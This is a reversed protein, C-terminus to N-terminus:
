LHIYEYSRRISSFRFFIGGSLCLSFWNGEGLIFVVLSNRHLGCLVFLSGIWGLGAIVLRVHLSGFACVASLSQRMQFKSLVVKPVNGIGLHRKEQKQEKRAGGTHFGLKGFGHVICPLYAFARVANYLHVRPM